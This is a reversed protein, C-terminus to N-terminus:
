RPARAAQQERASLAASQIECFSAIPARGKRYRSALKEARENSM